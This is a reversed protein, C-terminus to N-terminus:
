LLNKGRCIRRDALCHKTIRASVSEEHSLLLKQVTKNLLHLLARRPRLRSIRSKFVARSKEFLNQVPKSFGLFEILLVPCSEVVQVALDSTAERALDRCVFGAAGVDGVGTNLQQAFLCLLALGFPHGPSARLWEM